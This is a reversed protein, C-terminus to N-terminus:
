SCENEIMKRNVEIQMFSLKFHQFLAELCRMNRCLEMWDAM